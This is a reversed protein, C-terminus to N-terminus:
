WSRPSRVSTYVFYFQHVISVPVAIAFLVMLTRSSFVQGVAAMTANSEGERKPPTHPLVFCFVGLIGGLLQLHM